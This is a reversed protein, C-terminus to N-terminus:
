RHQVAATNTTDHPLGDRKYAFHLRKLLRVYLGEKAAALLEVVAVCYDAQTALHRAASECVAKALATVAAQM